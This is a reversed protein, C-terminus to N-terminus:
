FRLSLCTLGGDMKKFESTPTTIINLGLNKLQALTAPYGEPTILTDNIWLTNGAYEEDKSVVIHEFDAFASHRTNAADLLLTNKGVYNVISKLHLGDCVEIVDVRYGFREVIAAFESIGLQNTRSSLGVFFRKGVMLVDGGDMRGHQIREICRYRALVPEITAVEGARSVAGPHTIVAVEPMVVATDEVFHGDPFNAIAPLITVTLGLDSLINVYHTFQERTLKPYPTGLRATTLGDGCTLAPVRAIANTFHM